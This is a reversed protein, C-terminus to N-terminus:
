WWFPSGTLARCERTSPTQLCQEAAEWNVESHPTMPLNKEAGPVPQWGPLWAYNELAVTDSKFAALAPYFVAFIALSLGTVLYAPLRKGADWWRGLVIGGIAGVYSAPLLFHFVYQVPKGSLPWFALGLMAALAFLGLLWDGRKWWSWLGGALAPVALFFTMPNSALALLHHKTELWITGGGLPWEWWHSGYAHDRVFIGLQHKMAFQLDLLEGPQLPNSAVLFGPAFTLFYVGLPLAFLLGTGKILTPVSQRNQWVFTFGIVLLLPLVTWKSAFALGMFLGTAALKLNRRGGDLMAHAFCLIALTAFGFMTADLFALRALGFLLFNSAILLLTIMTASRSGTLRWVTLGMALLGTTGLLLSFFRWTFPTNGFLHFGVAILNKAMMPHERNILEEGLFLQAAAAVYIPEDFLRDDIADINFLAALFFGLVTLSVAKVPM